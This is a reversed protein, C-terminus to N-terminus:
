EVVLIFQGLSKGKYEMKLEHKGTQKISVEGLINEPVAVITEKSLIELIDKKHLAKYLSGKNNAGGRIKVEKGRLKAAVDNVFSEEGKAKMKQEEIKAANTKIVADTAVVASKNNILFQAFGNPVEKVEGV